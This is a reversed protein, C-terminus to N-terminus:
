QLESEVDPVYRQGYRRLRVATQGDTMLLVQYLRDYESKEDVPLDTFSGGLAVVTERITNSHGVVLYRGSQGRIIEALAALNRPDYIEVRVNAIKATPAATNRTRIYDSSYVHTINKSRLLEALIQARTQGQPTLAPDRGANEGTVKEAHRVIYVMTGASNARDRTIKTLTFMGGILAAVVVFHVWFWKMMPNKRPGRDVSGM